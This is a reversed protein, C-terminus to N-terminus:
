FVEQRGGRQTRQEESRIGEVALSPFFSRFGWSTESKVSIRKSAVSDKETAETTGYARENKM